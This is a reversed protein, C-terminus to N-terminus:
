PKTLDDFLKKFGRQFLYAAPLARMEPHKKPSKSYILPHILSDLPFENENILQMHKGEAMKQIFDERNLPVMDVKSKLQPKTM